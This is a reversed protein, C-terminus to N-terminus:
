EVALDAGVHGEEGVIIEVAAAGGSAVLVDGGEEGGRLEL